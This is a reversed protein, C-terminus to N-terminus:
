TFARIDVPFVWRSKLAIPCSLASRLCPVRRSRTKRANLSREPHGWDPDKQLASHIRDNFTWGLRVRYWSQYLPVERLLFRIPDPVVRRFQEFPAAWHNSQQFITLSRVDHQIEPGVQMCSAGNGIIAVKKGAIDADPPWMATHWSEGRFDDAGDIDPYVPPNFIGAASIVVIATHTEIAGDATEM